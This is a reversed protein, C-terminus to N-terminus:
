AAATRRRRIFVLAGVAALAGPVLLLMVLGNLYLDQQTVSLAQPGPKASIAILNEQQSLWDFTGLVLDQNDAASSLALDEGFDPSGILAIRTTRHGGADDELTRMLTFIGQQDGARQSLFKSLDRPQAIQYAATTTTALDVSDRATSGTIATPHPFLVTKGGLDKTIPSSAWSDVAPTTPDGQAQHNPDPDVVLGGSFGVDYPKLIANISATVPQDQWPGFAVLLKGGGQLYAVIAAQGTASVASTPGVVALVDCSAPIRPQQSLLLEQVAYNRQQLDQKAQSYGNQDGSDQYSREGDGTGWCVNPTRSSELRVIAGTVDSETQSALNLIVPQRNKYELALSGPITIGLQQEQAANQDADLFTVKVHPSQQQYLHLLATADNRDQKQDPRYFGIVALDSNLARTAKVSEPSLTNLGAHTMDLTATSRSAAVNALGLVGIVMASVLVSLAGFRARRDRVLDLASRADLILSALVLAVGAVLCLYAPRILGGQSLAIGAASFFLLVGAALCALSLWREVTWRRSV